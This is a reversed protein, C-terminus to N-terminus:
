SSTSATSSLPRLEHWKAVAPKSSLMDTWHKLEEAGACVDNDPGVTVKAVADGHNGHHLTLELRAGSTALQQRSLSTFTLAENWHGSLRLALAM